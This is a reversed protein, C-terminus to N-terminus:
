RRVSALNQKTQDSIKDTVDEGDCFYRTEIKKEPFYPNCLDNLVFAVIGSDQGQVLVTLRKIDNCVGKVSLVVDVSLVKWLEERFLGSYCNVEILSNEVIRHAYSADTIRVIDGVKM